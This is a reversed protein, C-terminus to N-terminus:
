TIFWYNWNSYLLFCGRTTEMGPPGELLSHLVAGSSGASDLSLSLVRRPSWLANGTWSRPLCFFFLSHPCHHQRPFCLKNRWCGCSDPGLWPWPSSICNSIVEKDCYLQMISAMRPSCRVSSRFQIWWSKFLASIFTVSRLWSIQTTRTHKHEWHVPPRLVLPLEGLHQTLTFTNPFSILANVQSSRWVWSLWNDRVTAPSATLSSM